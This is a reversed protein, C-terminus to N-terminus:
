GILLPQICCWQLNTNLRDKYRLKPRGITRSSRKLKGYMLQRPIRSDDMRSSHGSWHLQAKLLMAEISTSDARDLVEQNTGKDTRM